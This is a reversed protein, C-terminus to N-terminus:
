TTRVRTLFSKRRDCAAISQSLLTMLSLMRPDESIRSSFECALSYSLNRAALLSASPMPMLMRLSNAPSIGAMMNRVLRAVSTIRANPPCRTIVPAIVSPCNVANLEYRAIRIKGIRIMPKMLLTTACACADNSRIECTRM